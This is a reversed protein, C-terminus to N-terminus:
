SKKLFSSLNSHLEYAGEGLQTKRYTKIIERKFDLKELGDRLSNVQQEIQIPSTPEQNDTEPWLEKDIDSRKVPKDKNKWLLEFLKIQGPEVKAEKGKYKLLRRVRDIAIAEGVEGEQQELPPIEVFEGQFEKIFENPAEGNLFSIILAPPLSTSEMILKYKENKRLKIGEIIKEIPVDNTYKEIENKDEEALGDTIINVDDCEKVKRILITSYSLGDGEGLTKNFKGLKPTILKIYSKRKGKDRIKDRLKILKVAVTNDYDTGRLDKIYLTHFSFYKLRENDSLFVNHKKLWGHIDIYKDLEDIIQKKELLRCDITELGSFYEYQKLTLNNGPDLILRNISEVWSVKQKEDKVNLLLIKKEKIAKEITEIPFTDTAISAQNDTQSETIM